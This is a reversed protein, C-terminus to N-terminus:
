GSRMGRGLLYMEASSDRSASPKRSAVSEFAKRMRALFEPYGSGQFAKILMAGGPKLHAQAFELALECLDQSRAQDSAAVGSLNPAMDSVVLDVPMGALSKELTELVSQERFDGQIFTVGALPEMPLIDLALVKGRTGTREALVQAWSGPTAGLDVVFMGSRILRDHDDIEILKFAARSRYGQAKAAKVFPDAVHRRMWEKSKAERKM